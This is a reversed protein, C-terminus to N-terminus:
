IDQKALSVASVVSYLAFFVMGLAFGKLDGASSYVSPGYAMNYYITYQTWGELRFNAMFSALIVVILGSGLLVAGCVGVTTSRTFICIMIILAAFATMLFWVRALCFLVDGWGTVPVMNHFWLNMLLGIGYYFVLYVFGLISAAMLKSAIYKWRKRHLAMSNKIFGGKFDACVFLAVVIGYMTGYVGGDMTAERFLALTGGMEMEELIQEVNTTMIMGMKEASERGEPSYSLYFLWYCLYLALVLFGFCLYISKCRILRYLDMRLLNFM